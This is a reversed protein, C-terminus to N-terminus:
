SFQDCLQVAPEGGVLEIMLDRAMIIHYDASDRDERWDSPMICGLLVLLKARRGESTQPPIAWMREALNDAADFHPKQL